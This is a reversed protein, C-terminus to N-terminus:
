SIGAVQWRDNELVVIVTSHLTKKGALAVTVNWSGSPLQYARVVNGDKLKQATTKLASRAHQSIRARSPNAIFQTVARTVQDKAASDTLPQETLLSVEERIIQRLRAHTLKM